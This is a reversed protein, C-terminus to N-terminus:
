PESVGTDPFTTDACDYDTTISSSSKSPEADVYENFMLPEIVEPVLEAIAIPSSDVEKLVVPVKRMLFALEPSYRPTFPLLRTVSSM